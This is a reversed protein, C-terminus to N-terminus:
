VPRLWLAVLQFTWYIPLFLFGFIGVFNAADEFKEPLRRRWELLTNIIMGGNLPPVPYLNVAAQKAALVGLAIRYPGTRFLSLFRGALKRGGPVWAPTWPAFTVLQVFGRSLSRVSPWRGLCLAALFLLALCGSAAIAARRLPHLDNFGPPEMDAAFVVEDRSKPPDQDGKFKAYGGFPIVGIRFSVRCIRFRFYPPGFFWSVEEVTAGLLWGVLAMTGVHLFVCPIEAALLLIVWSM